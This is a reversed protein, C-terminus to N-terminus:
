YSQTNNAMSFSKIICWKLRIEMDACWIRHAFLVLYPAAKKSSRPITTERKQFSKEEEIKELFLTSQFLAISQSTYKNIHYKAVPRQQDQLM